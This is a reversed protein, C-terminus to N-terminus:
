IGTGAFIGDHQKGLCARNKVYYDPKRKKQKCVGRWNVGSQQVRNRRFYIRNRQRRGETRKGTDGKSRKIYRGADVGKQHLSSPNGYDEEMLKVVLDKVQPFVKTTAANDFYAEM